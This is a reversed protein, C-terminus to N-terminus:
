KPGIDAKGQDPGTAYKQELTDYFPKAVARQRQEFGAIQDM